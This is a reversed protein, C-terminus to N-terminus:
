TSLSAYQLQYVPLPGMLLLSLFCCLPADRLQFALGNGPFAADDALQLWLTDFGADGVASVLGGYSTSPEAIWSPGRVAIICTSIELSQAWLKRQMYTEPYDSFQQEFASSPRDILVYSTCFGAPVDITSQRSSLRMFLPGRAKSARPAADRRRCSLVNSSSLGAADTGRANPCDGRTGRCSTVPAALDGKYAKFFDDNLNTEMHQPQSITKLSPVSSTDTRIRSDTSKTSVM